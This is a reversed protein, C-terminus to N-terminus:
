RPLNTEIMPRSVEAATTHEIGNDDLWTLQLGLPGEAPHSPDVRLHLKGLPPVQARDAELPVERGGLVVKSLSVFYPSPNDARLAPHGEGDVHMSWHLKYPASAANGQLGTPRHFIKLRWRMAFELPAADDGKTRAPVDLINLWLLSERDAPLKSADVPRVQIDRNKGAELRFLAPTAVYPTRLNELAADRQGEDLWVQILSVTKGINHIRLNSPATSGGDHVVRTAGVRLDALALGPISLLLLAVVAKKIRM